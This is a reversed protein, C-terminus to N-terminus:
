DLSNMESYNANNFNPSKSSHRIASGDNNIPIYFNNQETNIPKSSLNRRLKKKKGTRPNM